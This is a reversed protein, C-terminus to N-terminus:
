ARQRRTRRQARDRELRELIGHGALLRCRHERSPHFEGPQHEVHGGLSGARSWGRALEGAAARAAFDDGDRERRAGGPGNVQSNALAGAARHEQGRSSRGAGRNQLTPLTRRAIRFLHDARFQSHLNRWSESGSKQRETVLTVLAAAAQIQGRNPGRCAGAQLSGPLSTLRVPGPIVTRSGPGAGPRALLGRIMM